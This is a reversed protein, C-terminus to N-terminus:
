LVTNKMKTFKVKIYGDTCVLFRFSEEGKGEREQVIIYM